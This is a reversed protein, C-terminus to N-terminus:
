DAKLACFTIKKGDKFCKITATVQNKEYDIFADEVIGIKNGNSDTFPRGKFSEAFSKMAYKSVLDKSKKTEVM